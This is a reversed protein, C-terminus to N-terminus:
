EDCDGEKRSRVWQRLDDVSYRVSRGIRVHPIKGSQKLTFLTRDSVALWAAAERTKLLGQNTM